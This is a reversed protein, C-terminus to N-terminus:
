FHLIYINVNELAIFSDRFEKRGTIQIKPGILKNETTGQIKQKMEKIMGYLQYNLPICAM